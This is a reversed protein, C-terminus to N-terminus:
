VESQYAMIQCLKHPTQNIIESPIQTNKDLNVTNKVGTIYTM